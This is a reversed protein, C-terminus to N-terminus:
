RGTFGARAPIIRHGAAYRATQALLGRALPSSGPGTQQSGSPSSTFGARAPIIGMGVTVRFCAVLLGRALPSSGPAGVGDIGSNVYVGRSRPHDGGNAQYEAFLSTFGARAPIIWPRCEVVGAAARLGRALPSSGPDASSWARPPGYVGRSRPHDGLEELAVDTQATFGARAPIIRDPHAGAQAQRQLGRALPSSGSGHSGHSCLEDTFGARAPIIGAMRPRQRAARRLGRALPSSGRFMVASTCSVPYVGRSRPHDWGRGSM